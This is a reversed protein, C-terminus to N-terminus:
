NPVQSTFDIKSNLLAKEIVLQINIINQNLCFEYKGILNIHQWAVPSLRKILECLTLQKQKNCTNYLNSLLTANYFIICNAVLRTCENYIEMEVENKGPLKKDSIKRIASILQHLAEGRNLTRHVNSRMDPDDIYDLMYLSMIIKDFEILAKLTPNNRKYSALKRIVTAQTTEKMALSALIRLINDWEKIILSKNVKNKPKIIFQEWKSINQFSVLNERAKFPLKTFRPMFRYGFMHMLAFNVRNISHMDGSVAYLDVDSSNNYTLDFLYHGEYENAGIIKDNIPVHNAVLKLSVVGKGLGFYKKSYRAKITHNKTEVKQGDISAHIGYESLTYFQFIPMKAIQNVICDNAERLTNLSFFNNHTFMLENLNIDSIDAMKRIGFGAGNAILVAILNNLEVSKKSYYPQVHKFKKDVQTSEIVYRIVDGININPFNEYFPNNVDDEQKRYPLRWTVDSSKNKNFKIHKNKGTKIHQNVEHYSEIMTANLDNLITKIPQSLLPLNLQALIKEKNTLWYEYPILDDELRRYNISYPIYAQGSDLMKNLQLYVMYEYRNGNVMKIKRRKDKSDPFKEIVQAYLAKPIFDLPVEEISYFKKSRGSDIQTKLFDVACKLPQNDHCNFVIAQFVPRLNIKISRSKNELYSWIYQKKKAETATLDKAFQDINEKPVIQFAKPRLNDDTVRKDSYLKILKGATILRKEAQDTDLSLQDKAFQEGAQYLKNVRYSFFATLHDNVKLYRQHGYCLLYLRTLNKKFRKLKSAPYFQAMDAYYEINQASIKLKPLISEATKYVELLIQQKAVEKRMESTTFDKPDKKLLTIQYFSDDSKLLGDLALRDDKDLSVSLKNLLRNRESQLANSVILQMTSYGPRILNWQLCCNLLEDFIFRPYVHRKALNKAQQQLKIKNKATFPELKFRKLLKKQNNYHHHKSIQKKPFLVNTFYRNIIFWVDERVQYFTFNFFYTKARFYGLQLIYDIKVSDTPLKNIEEHDSESLEFLVRRDPDTLKPIGYLHDQEDESLITIRKGASM